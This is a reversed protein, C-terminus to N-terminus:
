EYIRIFYQLRTTQQIKKIRFLGTNNQYRLRQLPKMFNLLIVISMLNQRNTIIVYNNILISINLNLSAANYFICVTQTIFAFDIM